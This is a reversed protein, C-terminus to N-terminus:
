GGVGYGAFFTFCHIVFNNNVEVYAHYGLDRFYHASSFLKLGIRDSVQLLTQSNRNPVIEMFFRGTGLEVGGVVWMQRVPRATFLM